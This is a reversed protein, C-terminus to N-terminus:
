NETPMEVHDIALTQVSGKSPVLKLGLQEQLATFISPAAAEGADPGAGAGAMQGDPTWKLDFDYKGTLNTKDVVTRQVIYGLQTALTAIDYDQVQLAFPSMHMMGHRKPVEGPKADPDPTEPASAKMRPGNKAVVLEYIPLIKPEVHAKLRFRDALLARLMANKQEETLKEFAKTDDGTVKAQIDFGMSGVWNPGGSILDRKIGYAGSVVSQLQINTLTVGDPTSMWRSSQDDGSHQRVSVVDFEPVKGVDGIGPTAKGEISPAPVQALSGIAALGLILM